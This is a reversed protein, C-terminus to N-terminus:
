SWNLTGQKGRVSREEIDGRGETRKAARAEARRRGQEGQDPARDLEGHRSGWAAGLETDRENWPRRTCTTTRDDEELEVRHDSSATRAGQASSQTM